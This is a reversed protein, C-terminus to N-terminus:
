RIPRGGALADGGRAHGAHLFELEFHAALIWEDHEVIGVEGDGDFARGVAREERGALAARRRRPEDNGFADVISEDGSQGFPHLREYDVIREFGAGV